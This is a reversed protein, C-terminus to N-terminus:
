GILNLEGVPQSKGGYRLRMEVVKLMKGGANVVANGVGADVTGELLDGILASM